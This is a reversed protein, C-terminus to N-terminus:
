SGIKLTQRIVKETIKMLERNLLGLTNKTSDIQPMLVQSIYSSTLLGAIALENARKVSQNLNGSIHSLDDRYEQYYNGLENLLDLKQKANIDSFEKIASRIYHGVSGFSASQKKIRVYEDETLRIEIRKTRNRLKGTKAM